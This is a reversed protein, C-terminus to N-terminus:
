CCYLWRRVYHSQFVDAGPYVAVLWEYLMWLVVAVLVGVTSRRRGGSQAAALQAVMRVPRSAVGSLPWSVWIPVDAYYLFVLSARLRLGIFVQQGFSLLGAYGALLNWGHGLVAFVFVSFLLHLAYSNAPLFLPLLLLVIVVIAARPQRASRLVFGGPNQAENPL